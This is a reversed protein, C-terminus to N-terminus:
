PRLAPQAIPDLANDFAAEMESAAKSREKALSSLQNIDFSLLGEDALRTRLFNEARDLWDRVEEESTNLVRAVASLPMSEIRALTIARRWAAPMSSIAAALCQRM